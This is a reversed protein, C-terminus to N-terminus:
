KTNNIAHGGFKNRLAALLQTAYSVDGQQSAVRVKLADELAPMPIQSAHAADITWRGEGSDAVFGDVGHLDPNENM